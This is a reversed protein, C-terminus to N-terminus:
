EDRGLVELLFLRTDAEVSLEGALRTELVVCAELEFRGARARQLRFVRRVEECAGRGSQLEAEIHGLIVALGRWANVIERDSLAEPNIANPVGADTLPGDGGRRWATGGTGEFLSRYDRLWSLRLASIIEPGTRPGALWGDAWVRWEADLTGPAIKGALHGAGDRAIRVGYYREMNATGRALDTGFQVMESALRVARDREGAQLAIRIERDMAERLRVFTGAPRVPLRTNGVATTRTGESILEVARRAGEFTGDISGFAKAYYERALGDVPEGPLPPRPWTQARHVRELVFLEARLIEFERQTEHRSWLLWAPILLVLLIAAVVLLFPKVVV